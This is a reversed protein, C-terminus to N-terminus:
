YDIEIGFEHRIWEFLVCSNESLEIMNEIAIAYFTYIPVQNITYYQELAQCYYFFISGQMPIHYKSISTNITHYIDVMEKYHNQYILNCCLYKLTVPYIQAQFIIDLSATQRYELVKQLIIISQYPTNTFRYEYAINNLISLEIWSLRYAMIKQLDFNKITCYLAEQFRNLRNKESDLFQAKKFLFFQKYLVDKDTIMNELQSLCDNIENDSLYNARILKFKLEYFKAEKENGWFVFERESFGLRQLLTEALIVEPQLTENEIKSLKSKSCLGLCLTQQSIGQKIRLKKILKGITVVDASYIDYTGDTFDLTDIIKKTEYTQLPIDPIALLHEPLSIDLHTCIYNRCVTAYPSGIAHASYFTDKFMQLSKEKDDNYYYSLATLFNLELLPSNDGNVVMQHRHKDATKLANDYDKTALLYKTYCIAHEALLRDKELFTIQRDALYSDIQICINLCTEKDNLYLAEQAIATLLEIEHISLLLKRFDDLCIEPRSIHLASVLDDYIQQHNGTGSRIQLKCHLLVWEQYYFKNKNWEIKEVAELEEYAPKLQWANLHFRAHTLHYFCEYDNWNEFIPYIQCPAGAHEMLAQFTAPSVGMTNKEICSLARLSCVGESLQEQTLNAKIRAEKITLGANRVSM